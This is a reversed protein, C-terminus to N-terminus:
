SISHFHYIEYKHSIPEIKGETDNLARTKKINKEIETSKGNKVSKPGKKGKTSGEVGIGAGQISGRFSFFTLPSCM